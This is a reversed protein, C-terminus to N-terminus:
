ERLTMSRRAEQSEPYTQRRIGLTGPLLCPVHRAAVDGGCQILAKGTLVSILCDRETPPVKLNICM